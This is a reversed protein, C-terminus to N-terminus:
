YEELHINEWFKRRRKIEELEDVMAPDQLNLRMFRLEGKPGTPSFDVGRFQLGDKGSAFDAWLKVLDKSMEIDKARFFAYQIPSAWLLPLEDTHATGPVKHQYEQRMIVEIFFCKVRDIILDLVPHIAAQSFAVITGLNYGGQHDLLYLYLSTFKRELIYAESLGVQFLRDGYLNTLNLIVQEPQMKSLDSGFYFDLVKQSVDTRTPDFHFARPAWSFWDKMEDMKTRNAWITTSHLLGEDLSYGSLVPVRSFNGSRILEIPEETL